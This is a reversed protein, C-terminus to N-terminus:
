PLLGLEMARTVARTRDNVGLKEFVHGLHTKVTTESLFLQRGIAPNSNGQAVLRLVEFERPSLSPGAIPKGTTRRVLAAMASPALATEGRATARVGALIESEPAAKLLYGAAGAEIAALIQDDSEYTTLILVRIGPERALIRATAADGNLGPMRLDMLVVDPREALTIAVAAEGDTAQGVVEVDDAEQLLAVIGSRVIPHDDAVVVRIM